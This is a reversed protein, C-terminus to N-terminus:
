ISELYLALATVEEETMDLSMDSMTKGTREGSKYWAMQKLFYDPTQGALRPTKSRGEGKEGHCESCSEVKKKPIGNEYIAKGLALIAPDTTVENKAPKQDAFYRAIETIEEDSYSKLVGMYSNDPTMRTENKYAKLEGVLYNFQQGGIKPYLVDNINGDVGHCNACHGIRAEANAVTSIFFVSLATIMLKTM